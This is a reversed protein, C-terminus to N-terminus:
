TIDKSTILIDTVNEENNTMIGSERYKENAIRHLQEKNLRFAEEYGSGDFSVTLPSGRLKNLERLAEESVQFLVHRDGDDAHFCVSRSSPIYRGDDHTELFSLTM